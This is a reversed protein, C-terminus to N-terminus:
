RGIQIPGRSPDTQSARGDSGRDVDVKAVKDAADQIARTLTKAAVDLELKWRQAQEQTALKQEAQSDGAARGRAAIGGFFGREDATKGEGILGQIRALNAKAADVGGQESVSKGSTALLEKIQGGAAYQQRVIDSGSDLAGRNVAMGGIITGGILAAGGAARLGAGLMTEGANEVIAATATAKGGLARSVVAEVAAAVGKGIMAKGIEVVIAAGVLTPVTTWLSHDTFFAIFNRIGPIAKTFEDILQPMLPLLKDNLV